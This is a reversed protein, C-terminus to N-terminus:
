SYNKGTESFSRIANAFGTSENRVLNLEGKQITRNKVSEYIDTLLKTQMEISESKMAAAVHTCVVCVIVITTHLSM